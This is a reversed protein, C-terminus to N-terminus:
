TEKKLEQLLTKQRKLGTSDVYPSYAYMPCSYSKCDIRSDEFGNCQYCMALMSEKRSIEEGNLFKHWETQGKILGM